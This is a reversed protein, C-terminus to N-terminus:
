PASDGEQSGWGARLLAMASARMPTRIALFPPWLGGIGGGKLPLHLLHRVQEGQAAAGPRHGIGARCEHGYGMMVM